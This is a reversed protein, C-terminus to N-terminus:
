FIRHNLRDFGGCVDILLFVWPLKSLSL